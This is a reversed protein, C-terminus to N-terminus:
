KLQLTPKAPAPREVGLSPVVTMRFGSNEAVHRSAYGSRATSRSNAGRSWFGGRWLRWGPYEPGPDNLCSDRSNGAQGRVGYPSEDSSFETVSAPRMGGPHSQNMNAWAPSDQRGWPYPRHDPGRAAKEWEEEHPLTFLHGDKARRWACYAMADEWCIALAPWDEEWDVTSNSLRRAQVRLDPPASALWSATPVVYPPGPWYFGSKQSERPVRAAAQDPDSKALDNLFVCYEGCTVPHRAIFFDALDKTDAPASYPNEPDGQYGFKGAPIPLYGGPIEGPRWLTVDQEWLGCRPIFVPCRIPEFGKGAILLLYSGMPLVRNEVPTRGLYAGPGRPRFPSDPAFLAEVPPPHPSPAAGAPTVPMLRRGIVEYRYLWAEAGVVPNLACSAHHVKLRVAAEPELGTLGEADRHQDVARGSFPHHGLHVLEGPGAMRGDVLCRCPYARTRVTLTGDGKLLADLPGDNYQEVVRRHLLMEKEDENAEAELFKEWSMEAKLRRAERHEREHGLALTLTADAVSFAEVGLRELAKVRDEATWLASRDPDWPKLNKEVRSVEKAAVRADEMLQVRRTMAAKAKTVAEEALGHDRERQKAGDLFLQIEQQLGLAAQYRDERRFALAKLCIADLEPIIPTRPGDKSLSCARARASPATIRGARVRGLIERATDGEFPPRLTLIEYLIAGLSYIDSRQDLDHLRGEAQEPPMYAPTGLIEGELTMPMFERNGGPAAAPGGWAAAAEPRNKVDGFYRALGWDVIYVEGYDGLMVNAPKLDRHIVGRDHAFAMGQCVAQFIQLLRTRTWQRAAEADGKRIAHLVQGLDRGHIRKMALFLRKTRGPEETSEAADLMGFDYVPVINPHELRGALEAERVFREHQEASLNELVVKVAVERNLSADFAQVVRGLGGRGLEAGLRYRARPAALVMVTAADHPKVSALGKRLDPPVRLTLLADRVDRDMSVAVLSRAGDGANLKLQEEVMLMVAVHQSPKLLGRELLLKGMDLTADNMWVAACELLHDKSIFNMQLALLGLLLDSERSMTICFSAAFREGRSDLAQKM